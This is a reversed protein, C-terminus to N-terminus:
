QSLVLSIFPHSIGAHM